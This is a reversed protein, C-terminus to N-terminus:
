KVSPLRYVDEDYRGEDNCASSTGKLAMRYPAISVLNTGSILEIGFEVERSLPLRQLEEPFVDSSDRVTRIDKVLLNVSDSVNIYALFAECGKMVLKEAVLASIVNSLYNRRERIVVIESDERHKMLWDMGFILDFEGFPLEMLNALFIMGQVELPVDRFLKNVWISQGLLSVVLIESSTSKHPIGLTESVSCAVYSHTSGIDTIIDLADGDECYRTAYVLTPQRTQTPGAGRGPARHGRGM